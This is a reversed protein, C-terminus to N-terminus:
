RIATALACQKYHGAAQEPQDLAEHLQALALHSERVTRPEIADSLAQELHRQAKGWLKQRLCFMGLTLALEADTPNKALWSECHEIQSLLAPSGAEATSDRYARLLRIDWDAALARELLGRADDHLGRSAFAQAARVAIYPKLKDAGPVGNWLLRISEADHSRDSLLADYSMERLRNSLAPHLANRKDLTQVLRLVEPWNKAQQNAKLAWQLAQIHRTGNANLEEVTQLAQKFHHEDVQLELATMLRAAKLSPDVETSALWIDRRDGQRMRHAARAAVLAAIGANDPLDSARTASKEAQGFRGEFYAKLADRLAKNSENERKARRYAIVRGPLKQTLRIARIVVYIAVFLALAAFIFFNLSLDIRYPPYFLVVNGPNFRALVALGIASAFLTLLWLLIKM